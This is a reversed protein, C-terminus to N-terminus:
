LLKPNFYRELEKDVRKELIASMSLENVDQSTRAEIQHRRMSAVLERFEYDSMAELKDSEVIDDRIEGSVQGYGYGPEANAGESVSGQSHYVRERRRAM